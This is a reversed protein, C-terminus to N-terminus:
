MTSYYNLDEASYPWVLFIDDRFRKWGIVAPNYELAKEDFQEIAIDGYSCSM